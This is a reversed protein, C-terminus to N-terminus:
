YSVNKLSWDKIYNSLANLHVNTLDIVIDFDKSCVENETIHEDSELGDRKLYILIAKQKKLFKVEHKRRVDTIILDHNINDCIYKLFVNPNQEVMMMGIEQVISRNSIINQNWKLEGRKFDDYQQTNSLLFLRCIFEKLPDAFAIKKFSKNIKIFEEAFTDKGVGRKGGIGIIM